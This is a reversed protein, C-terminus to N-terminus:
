RQEAVDVTLVYGQNRVTRIIRPNRANEELHQRLRSICIDIARDFADREKGFTQEILYDRTLTHHAHQLLLRLVRYDSGALSIVVSDPSLLQRARTDLRWGAFNVFTASDAEHAPPFSHTRRLVVKIRALLERPDFPKTLYDDAGMELGLIRDVPAGRATLMIIPVSSRMHLDRCLSLGDDGPLMVDLVILSATKRSLWERMEVGDAVTEVAYGAESLYLSLLQRIEQDDDVILIRQTLVSNM